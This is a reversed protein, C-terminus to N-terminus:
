VVWVVPTPTPIFKGIFQRPIKEVKKLIQIIQVM